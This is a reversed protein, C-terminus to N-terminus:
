SRGSDADYVFCTHLLPGCSQVPDHVAASFGLLTIYPLLVFCFFENSSPLSLLLIFFDLSFKRPAILSFNKEKRPFPFRGRKREDVSVLYVKYLEGRRKKKERQPFLFGGEPKV